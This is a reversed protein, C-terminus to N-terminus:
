PALQARDPLIALPLQAAHEAVALQLLILLQSLLGALAM